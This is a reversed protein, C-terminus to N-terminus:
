RTSPFNFSASLRARGSALVSVVSREPVGLKAAIDVTSQNKVYHLILIVREEEPLSAILEALTAPTEKADSMYGLSSALQSLNALSPINERIQPAFIAGCPSNRTQANAISTATRLDGRVM